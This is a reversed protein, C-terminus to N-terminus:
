DCLLLILDYQFLCSICNVQAVDTVPKQGAPIAFFTVDAYFYLSHNSQTNTTWEDGKSMFLIFLYLFLQLFRHKVVM